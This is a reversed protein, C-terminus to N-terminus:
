KFKAKLKTRSLGWLLLTKYQVNITHREKILHEVRQDSSFLNVFFSWLLIGSFIGLGGIVLVTPIGLILELTFRISHAGGGRPTPMGFPRLVFLYLLFECLLIGAFLCPMISIDILLNKIRANESM